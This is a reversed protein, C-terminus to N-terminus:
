KSIQGEILELTVRGLPTARDALGLVIDFHNTGEDEFATVPFDAAELLAAYSRSQRKFEGTENEGWAIISRVPPGLPLCMPSAAAADSPTLHLPANVYTDVLPELDYIGSLLVAGAVADDPAGVTAQWGRVLLMAALHAGASSGTVYLRRRDFGISDAERHLHAIARRCQSVITEVSAHPALTYNIAAFAVGNRVCDPAAFLSEEKSLEQWYGGHIFVFLPADRSAAPFYDFTEDPGAGWQLNKRCEFNREAERSRAIYEALFPTESAVCSSPSYETELRTRPWSRWAQDDPSMSEERFQRRPDTGM